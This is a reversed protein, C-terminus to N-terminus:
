GGALPPFLSIEDNHQLMTQLKGPLTSYHHGNVLVKLFQSIENTKSDFVHRRLGEGFTDCLLELLERITINGVQLEIRSQNNMVQRLTLFSKVVIKMKVPAIDPM